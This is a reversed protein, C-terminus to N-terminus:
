DDSIGSERLKDKITDYEYGKRLLAEITKMVLQQGSYKRENKRYVKELEKQLLADIEDTDPEFDLAQMAENIMEFSYGKQLLSQKVKDTRKKMPGKKQHMLKDALAVIDELPQEQEYREGYDEIINKEVGAKYIKQKYIEPGKDTTRIMTNKLSEAYDQHDIYGEQHCYAIVEAIAVENIEHKQLHTIVEQETRKRYSLYQVAYHLGLRYHEYKQIHMMDEATLADGKKLNFHVLTDMDIGMEFAGDLYLNFREKNKKQVEIMTIKPM